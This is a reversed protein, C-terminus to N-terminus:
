ALALIPTNETRPGPVPLDVGLRAAVPRQDLAHHAM